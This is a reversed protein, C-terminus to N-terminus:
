RAVQDNHTIRRILEEIVWRQTDHWADITSGAIHPTLILNRSRFAYGTLASWAQHFEPDTLGDEGPFVDLAAGHLHGSKLHALLVEHDLNAGQSTNVVVAGDPLLALEDAGIIPGPTTNSACIALVDTTRLLANRTEAGLGLEIGQVTHFLPSAMNMLHRGVRGGSGIVTLVSRSLMKPAGHKYRSMSFNLVAHHANVTNRHAALILGLTHEATATIGQLFAKDTLWICEVGEPARPKTTTNSVIYKLNYKSLETISYAAEPRSFLVDAEDLSEVLSFHEKLRDINDQAYHLLPPLLITKIM